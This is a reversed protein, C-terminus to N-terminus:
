RIQKKCLYAKESKNIGNISNLNVAGILMFNTKEIKRAKFSYIKNNKRLM